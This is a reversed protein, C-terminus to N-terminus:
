KGLMEKRHILVEAKTLEPINEGIDKYINDKVERADKLQGDDIHKFLKDLLAAIKKTREPADMVTSLILSSDLGYGLDHQVSTINDDTRLKWICDSRVEGIIQPSHTTLIFQCNPFTETLAPIVKRQWDPHLHLDIEDILVVAESLLPDDLSPNALALRRALDGVLALTCKEGDSLQDILLESNGKKVVMRLPQRRIRLNSFGPLFNPIARRVSELQGDPMVNRNLRYQENELDERERFWEFFVRFSSQAGTLADQYAAMQDFKHKGRIRLPSSLVARNVPYYVAMPVSANDDGSLRAQVIEMIKKIDSLKSSEERARGARTKSLNWKYENDEFFIEIENDTYKFRNNIDNEGYLRGGTKASSKIGSTLRSLLIALCNLIASKGSGNVGFIVNIKEDFNITLSDIGRFHNIQLGRVKM